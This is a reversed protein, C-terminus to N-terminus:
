SNRIVMTLAKIASDSVHFVLQWIILYPFLFQMLPNFLSELINQNADVDPDNEM